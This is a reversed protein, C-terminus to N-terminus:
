LLTLAASLAGLKATREDGAGCLIIADGDMPKLGARLESWIKGPFDKECDPSGGPVAFKGSSIVYTTAGTAGVRVASDRQDIGTGLSGAASRVLIAVQSGGVVPAPANPTLVPTLKMTISQYLRRGSATLHCGSADAEVYKTQRFKKLVTRISGEGLGSSKALAQRGISGASGITMFALLAHAKSYAPSPGPEHRELAELFARVTPM